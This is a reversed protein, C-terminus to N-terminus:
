NCSEILTGNQEIKRNEYHLVYLTVEFLRTKKSINLNEYVLEFIRIYYM